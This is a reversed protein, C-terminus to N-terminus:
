FVDKQYRHQAELENLYTIAEERAKKGHTQLIQILAEQVGAALGRADGCVYIHAGKNVLWDYIFASHEEEIMRHQIFVRYDQDHSFATVLKLQKLAALPEFLDHGFLYDWERKYAGFFLADPGVNRPGLLRRYFHREQIFAKFPAVGTGAGFYLCPRTMDQPLRFLSEKIFIPVFEGERRTALYQSCVGRRPIGLTQYRVRAITASVLDPTIVPSSSISYYRCQLPPLLDLLERATPITISPFAKLVDFLNRKESVIWSNYDILGLSSSSALFELKTRETSKTAYTALSKLLSRRPSAQLDVLQSLIKGVTAKIQGSQVSASSSSVGHLNPMLVRSQQLLTPHDKLAIEERLNLKLRQAYIDVFRPDNKPYVGLYDGSHYKLGSGQLNFEFYMVSNPSTANNLEKKVMIESLLPHRIDYVVPSSVSTTRATAPASCSFPIAAAAATASSSPSPSTPTCISSSSLFPSPSASADCPTSLTTTPPPPSSSSPPVTAAPTTSCTSPPSSASTSASDSATAVYNATDQDTIGQIEGLRNTQLITQMEAPKEASTSEIWTFLDNSWTEFDSEIDAASDGAGRPFVMKAGLANLRAEFDRGAKQYRQPFAKSQGLGFITFHVNSFFSKYKEGQRDASLLWDFFRKANDTPQGEGFCAIVFVILGDNALHVFNYENLDVVRAVIPKNKFTKRRCMKRLENAFAAATGTQSGFLITLNFEDQKANTDTNSTTATKEESSPSTISSETAFFSSQSCILPLFTRQQQHSSRRVLFSSSSSSSLLSSSCVTLPSSSAVTLSHYRSNRASSSSLSSFPSSTLRLALIRLRSSTTTQLM